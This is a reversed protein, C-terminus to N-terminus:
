INKRNYQLILFFYSINICVKIEVDYTKNVNTQAVVKATITVSGNSSKKEIVNFVHGSEYLKKGKTENQGRIRTNVVPQFGYKVIKDM